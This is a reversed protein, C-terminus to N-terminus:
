AATSFLKADSIFEKNNVQKKCLGVFLQPTSYLKVELTTSSAEEGIYNQSVVVHKTHTNQVPNSVESM